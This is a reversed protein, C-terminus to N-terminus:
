GGSWRRDHMEDDDDHAEDGQRYSRWEFLDAIGLHVLSLIFVVGFIGSVVWVRVPRVGRCGFCFCGLRLLTCGM